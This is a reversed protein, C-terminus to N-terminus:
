WHAPGSGVRVGPPKGHFYLMVHSAQSPGVWHGQAGEGLDVSKPADGKSKAVLRYVKDTTPTMSQVQEPSLGGLLERM